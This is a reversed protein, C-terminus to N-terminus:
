AYGLPRDRKIERGAALADYEAQWEQASRLSARARDARRNRDHTDLRALCGRAWKLWMRAYGRYAAVHQAAERM